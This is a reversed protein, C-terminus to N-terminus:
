TRENDGNMSLLCYVTVTQFLVFYIQLVPFISILTQKAISMSNNKTMLLM